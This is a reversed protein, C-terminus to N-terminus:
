VRTIGQSPCPLGKQSRLKNNENVKINANHIQGDFHRM